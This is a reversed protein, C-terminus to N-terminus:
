LTVEVRSGERLTGVFERKSKQVQVRVRQQLSTPELAIASTTLRVGGSLVELTVADGRRLDPIRRVGSSPIFAGPLLTQAAELRAVDEGMALIAGRYERALGEAINFERAELADMSLPEGPSLRRTTSWGKVWASYKVRYEVREEGGAEPSKGRRYGSVLVRAEGGASESLVAASTARDLPQGPMTSLVAIVEARQAGSYARLADSIVENVGASAAGITTIVGVMAAVLIKVTRLFETKM